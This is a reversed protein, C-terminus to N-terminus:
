EYAAYIYKNDKESCIFELYGLAGFGFVYKNESNDTVLAAYGAKCEMQCVTSIEAIGCDRACEVAGLACDEDIGLTQIFLDAEANMINEKDKGLYECSIEKEIVNLKASKGCGSFFFSTMSLFIIAYCM